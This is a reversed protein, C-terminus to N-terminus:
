GDYRYFGEIRNRWQIATYKEKGSDIGLRTHIFFQNDIVIGIHSISGCWRTVIVDLPKPKDVKGWNRAIEGAVLEDLTETDDIGNYQGDFCPLEIQNLERYALRVIGWCNCGNRGNSDNDIFPIGIYKASWYTDM